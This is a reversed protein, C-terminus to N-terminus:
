ATARTTTRGRAHGDALRELAALPLPRFLPVSACSASAREGSVLPTRRAPRALPWSLVAAVPLILGTVILAQEIGLRAILVSGLLGGLSVRGRRGGRVGLLGGAAARNPIGRQLLTFGARRGAANGIGVVALAALAVAAHAPRRHRRDARGVPRPRARPRARHGPRTGLALAVLAGVLGGLGMAAGLLGVGASAWGWCARPEPGRSLDNLMGRVGVQAWLAGTVVCGAAAERAGAARRPDPHGRAVRRARAARRGRGPRADRGRRPSSCIAAALAAAPAPRVPSRSARWSRGSSRGTAEGLANTVNASVLEDPTRAVAPLIAMM